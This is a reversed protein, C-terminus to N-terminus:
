ATSVIKIFSVAGFVKLKNITIDYLGSLTSRFTIRDLSEFSKFTTDRIFVVREEQM